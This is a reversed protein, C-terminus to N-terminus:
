KWSRFYSISFGFVSAGADPLDRFSYRRYSYNLGLSMHKHVQYSGYVGAFFDSFTFGSDLEDRSASAGAYAGVLVRKWPVWSGASYVLDTTVVRGFGLAQYLTREYRFVFGGRRGRKAAGAGGVLSWGTGPVDDSTYWSVGLSADLNWKSTLEKTFQSSFNHTVTTPEYLSRQFGYVFTLAATSDLTRKLSAGAEFIGADGRPDLSNTYNSSRYGVTLGGQTKPSFEHTLAGGVRWTFLDFVRTDIGEKAALGVTTLAPDLPLGFIPPRTPDPTPGAAVEPFTDASLQPSTVRFDSRYRVFTSDFSVDGRTSRTFDYSLGLSGYNNTVRIQPLLDGTGYLRQPNFGSALAESYRLRAVPSFSVTGSLAVGGRAGNFIDFERYVNGLVWGSAFFSYSRRVRSYGLSLLLGGITDDPGDPIFLLNSTHSVRASGTFTWLEAEQARAPGAGFGLALVLVLAAAPVRRVGGGKTM